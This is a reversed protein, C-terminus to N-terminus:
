GEGSGYKKQILEELYEATGEVGLFASNILIDRNHRDGRNSGTLALHRKHYRKDKELLLIKADSESLSHSKMINQIRIEDPAYIFARLLKIDKCRILDASRGIIVVLRGNFAEFGAFAGLGYGVAEVAAHRDLDAVAVAVVM